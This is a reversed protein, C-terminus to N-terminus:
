AEPGRIEDCTPRGDSQVGGIRSATGLIRGSHDRDLLIANAIPVALTAAHFVERFLSSFEDVSSYNGSVIRNIDTGRGGGVMVIAPAGSAM